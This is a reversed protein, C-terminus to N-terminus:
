GCTLGTIIESANVHINMRNPLYDMTVADGPRIIRIPAGFRMTQLVTASQGILGANEKAACETATLEEPNVTQCAGLALVAVIMLQKM